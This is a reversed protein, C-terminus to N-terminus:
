RDIDIYIYIDVSWGTEQICDSGGTSEHVVTIQDNAALKQFKSFSSQSWRFHGYVASHVQVSGTFTGTGHRYIYRYQPLLHVQVTCKVTVTSHRYIYRYQAHLHVQVTGTFTGTSHRYIYRYQTQLHVQVSGTFIGTSHM